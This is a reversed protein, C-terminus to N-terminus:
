ALGMDQLTTPSSKGSAAPGHVPIGHPYWELAWTLASSNYGRTCWAEYCQRLKELDPAQGLIRRLAPYMGPPVRQRTIDKIAQVAPHAWEDVGSGVRRRCIEDVAESLKGM